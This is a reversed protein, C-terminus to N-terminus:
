WGWGYGGSSSDGNQGNQSNQGSQSNQAAVQTKEGVTVTITLTEGRRYVTLELKDGVESGAIIESLETYTTITEGNVATVIDNAKLGGQEAPGGQEVSRISAGQPAGYAQSEEGVNAVTVGIYPTAVYGKEIISTVIERVSNIPIAFGINDISAQGSYASTSYKANTIGVVEGYMNFLAGGSNGSNIAADTQILKMTVSSSLTVARNLASVNGKTLSFTLEGLPNGIAVVEDGVELADSDGLTVPTLGEADIKLVAIDNSKDYGILTAPYSTGDYMAVTITNAKEIVHENTLIYGDETLIFGSGAAASTSQYGWFNTTTIETTIGVTSNVNAKYVESATMLKGSDVTVVNLEKTEKPGAIQVSTSGGRSGSQLSNVLLAGGVGAGGGVLACVLVLAVARKLFGGSRPKKRDRQRPQQQAAYPQQATHPQAQTYPQQATFPQAQAYSQEQAYPQQAVYSQQTGYLQERNPQDAQAPRATVPGSAYFYNSYDPQTAEGLPEAAPETVPAGAGVAAGAAEVTQRVDAAPVAAEVTEGVPEAVPVVAEFTEGLPAGEGVTKAVGEATQTVAEVAEAAPVTEGVPEAKPAGDNENLDIHNWEFDNM